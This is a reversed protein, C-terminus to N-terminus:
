EINTKALMRVAAEVLNDITNMYREPVMGTDRLMETAARLATKKREDKSLRGSLFLQEVVLVAKQAAFDITQLQAHSLGRKRLWPRVIFIYLVILLILLLAFAFTYDM